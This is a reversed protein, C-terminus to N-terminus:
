YIKKNLLKKIKRIQPNLIKLKWKTQNILQIEKNKYHIMKRRMFISIRFQNNLSISSIRGIILM